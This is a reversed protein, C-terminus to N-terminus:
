IQTTGERLDIRCTNSKFDATFNRGSHFYFSGLINLGSFYSDEPSVCISVGVAEHLAHVRFILQFESTSTKLKEILNKSYFNYLIGSIINRYIFIKSFSYIFGIQTGTDVIFLTKIGVCKKVRCILPVICRNYPPLIIGHVPYTPIEDTEELYEFGFYVRAIQKLKEESLDTLLPNYKDVNFDHIAYKNYPIDSM